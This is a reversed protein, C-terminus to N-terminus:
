FKALVSLNLGGPNANTVDVGMMNYSFGEKKCPYDGAEISDDLMHMNTEDYSADTNPKETGIGKDAFSPNVNEAAIDESSTAIEVTASNQATKLLVVDHVMNEAGDEAAMIDGDSGLGGNKHYALLEKTASVTDAAEAAKTDSLCTVQPGIEAANDSPELVDAVTDQETTLISVSYRLLKKMIQHLKKIYHYQSLAMGQPTRHIRIGLIVDAVGLDKMDFKLVNNLTLVKALTMKLCLKGTEKVKTTASNEMYIKEKGQTPTIPIFFKKNACVHHTSDFDMWWERLNGMLNCESLTVCLDDMEKKSEAM